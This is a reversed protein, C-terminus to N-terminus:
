LIRTNATKSEQNNHKIKNLISYYVKNTEAETHTYILPFERSKNMVEEKLADAWHITLCIGTKLKETIYKALTDKGHRAKHGIGLVVVKNM